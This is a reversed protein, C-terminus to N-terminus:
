KNLQSRQRRSTAHRIAFIKYQSARWHNVICIFFYFLNERQPCPLATSTVTVPLQQLHQQQQIHKTTTQKNNHHDQRSTSSRRRHGLQLQNTTSTKTETCNLLIKKLINYDYTFNVNNSLRSVSVFAYSKIGIYV